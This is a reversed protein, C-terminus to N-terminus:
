APRQPEPRQGPQEQGNGGTIVTLPPNKRPRGRGRKVTQSCLPCRMGPEPKTSSAPDPPLIEPEKPATPPAQEVVRLEGTMQDVIKVVRMYADRALLAAYSTPV